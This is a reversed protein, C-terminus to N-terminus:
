RSRLVGRKWWWRKWWPQSVWIEYFELEDVRRYHEAQDMIVLDHLHVAGGGGAFIMPTTRSGSLITVNSLVCSTLPRGCVLCTPGFHVAASASLSAPQEYCGCKVAANVVIEVM